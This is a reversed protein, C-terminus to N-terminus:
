YAGDHEGLRNRQRNHHLAHAGAEVAEHQDRNWQEHQRTMQEVPRADCITNKRERPREDTVDGAPQRM